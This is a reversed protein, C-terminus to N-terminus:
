VRSYEKAEGEGKVRGGGWDGRRGGSQLQQMGDVKARKSGTLVANCLWEAKVEDNWLPSDQIFFYKSATRLCPAASGVWKSYYVRIVKQKFSIARRKAVM